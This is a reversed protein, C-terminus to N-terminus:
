THSLDKKDLLAKNLYDFTKKDKLYQYEEQEAKTLKRTQFSTPSATLELDILRNYEEDTLEFEHYRKKRYDFYNVTNEPTLEGNIAKKIVKAKEPYAEILKTLDM